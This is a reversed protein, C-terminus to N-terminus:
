KLDNQRDQIKKRITAKQVPTMDSAEVFKLRAELAKRQVDVNDVPKAMVKDKSPTVEEVKRIQPMNRSMANKSHKTVNYTPISIKKGNTQQAM